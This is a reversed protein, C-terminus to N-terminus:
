RRKKAVPKRASKGSARAERYNRMESWPIAEGSEIMDAFRREALEDFAHRREYTDAKEAIAELIFSHTTKGARRAASTIRSKLEEPIRITTTSLPGGARTDFGM